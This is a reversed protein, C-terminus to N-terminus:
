IQILKKGALHGEGFYGTLKEFLKYFPQNKLHMKQIYNEFKDAFIRSKRHFLSRLDFKCFFLRFKEDSYESVVKKLLLVTSNLIKFNCNPAEFINRFIRKPKLYKIKFSKSHFYSKANWMVRVFQIKKSKKNIGRKTFWTNTDKSISM